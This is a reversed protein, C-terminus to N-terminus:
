QDFGKLAEGVAVAFTPGIEKVNKEISPPYFIDAFPDALKVSTKKFELNISKQFYELLGPLLATGGALVVEEPERKELQCFNRIIKKAEVTMTDLIPALIKESNQDSTSSIGNKRKIREAEAMDVQLAKSLAFTLDKSATDFSSSTKLMGRDVISVTTSQSGIDIIVYTIKEDKALSRQLGFVEAELAVIDLDAKKATEKYQNVATIPVALLLVKNRQKDPSHKTLLQPDLVVESPPLPVYKRAEFEVAQAIEKQTMPPLEFTTFFTAFDPLSFIAKNTKIDAEQIIAKLARSVDNSSLLLTNKNFTRFSEKYVADMGFEAYNELVKRKGKLSIEVIKISSTGVDIGLFSQPVNKAFPWIM